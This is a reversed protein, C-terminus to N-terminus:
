QHDCTDTTRFSFTFKPFAFCSRFLTFEIHPDELSPLAGLLQRIAGVRKDLM